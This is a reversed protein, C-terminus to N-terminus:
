CLSKERCVKPPAIYFRTKARFNLQEKKIKVAGDRRLPFLSIQIYVASPEPTADRCGATSHFSGTKKFPSSLQCKKVISLINLM